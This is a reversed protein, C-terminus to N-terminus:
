EEEEEESELQSFSQTIIAQIRLHSDLVCRSAGASMSRPRQEEYRNREEGDEKGKQRGEKEKGLARIMDFNIDQGAVM